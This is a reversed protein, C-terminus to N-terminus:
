ANRAAHDREEKMKGAAQQLLGRASALLLVNEGRVEMLALLANASALEALADGDVAAGYLKETDNM